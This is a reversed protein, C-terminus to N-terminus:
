GLQSIPRGILMSEAVISYAPAAGPEIIVDYTEATGIQLEDVEVPRVRQGDTAIVTMPLGPIRVDFYSMAAANIFRLRVREGRQFLGTWNGGPHQGNMLYSYMARTVDAIDTPNMWM